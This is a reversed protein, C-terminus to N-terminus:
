ERPDSIVGVFLLAGSREDSIAFVYPRDARFEFPEDAPAMAGEVMGIEAVAAAETGKEDVRLYTKHTVRAIWLGPGEALERSMGSFDALPTFATPMGMTSLQDSLQGTWEVECRPLAISGEADPDLSGRLERWGAGDLEALLDGPAADATPLVVYAAYRGGRYPLRVAEWEDTVAHAYTGGTNMMDVDVTKGDGLTFSERATSGEEFPEDWEGLFYTANVIEMVAAAPIQDVISEIQKHTRDSVWDNIVDPADPSQLDMTAIEAGFHDANAALFTEEFPEGEDAWIANAIELTAEDETALMALMDAWGTRVEPDDVADVGLVAAMEEATTGRAGQGAMSLAAAVSVPSIVTNGGPDAVESALSIGFGNVADVFPESVTARADGARPEAAKAVSTFGQDGTCGSVVVALLLALGAHLVSRMTGGESSVGNASYSAAVAWETRARWGAHLIMRTLPPDSGGEPM